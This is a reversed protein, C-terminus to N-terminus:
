SVEAVRQVCRLIMRRARRPSEGATSIMAAAAAVDLRAAVLAEVGAREQESRCARLARRLAESFEAVVDSAASTDELIAGVDVGLSSECIPHESPAKGSRRLAGRQGHVWRKARQISSWWLYRDRPVGRRPDFEDWALLIGLRLEQEVDEATVAAPVSWRRLIGRAIQEIGRRNAACWAGATM